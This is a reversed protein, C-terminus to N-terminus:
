SLGLLQRTALGVDAQRMLSEGVLMAQVRNSELMRADATTEIGSEGVVVKDDPIQRRLRITHQLDVKFTQLDRNNVGVLAAGTSLVNDLNREDYLEILVSMGLETALQYLSKLERQDLCEAILLIADAGAARAEFVQYPHIIFDKRLLPLSVSSRISRLYDLSGQFFHVDTLVSLCSAGGAEYARAIEVPDFNQRIVGKSPSAKKVEAILRIPPAHRLPEIFDRTPPADDALKMMDRLPRVRGAQEIETRKHALIKDLIKTM